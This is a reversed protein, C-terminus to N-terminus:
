TRAPIDVYVVTGLGYKSRIKIGYENGYMLKLRRNTNFLGIHESYDGKEKLRERISKLASPEIGLGNDIIAIKIIEKDLRIKIKIFCFSVKEKIGHYISNEIFPQFLLKIVKYSTINEDYQWIVGFKDKYRIKQIEIYSQTNKIEDSLSVLDESGSLSYHLLESLHEIMKSVENQGETLALSKWFLTKLTNFLFHPNMQAQLAMMEAAKLQYKKESLQVKLYSQEIFTKVVNQLIYGYEDKIYSPLAPLPEGKEASEFASIINNLRTYNRKTNYYTIALGLLFSIMVLFGTLFLLQTPVKYLFKKPIVSVYKLPYRGSEIISVVFTKSGSKYEFYDLPNSNIKEIDLEEIVSKNRTGAIINNDNDIILFTHDPYSIAENLIDEIYDKKVNMVIVGDAKRSGPSYLKDYLSILSVTDKEFSFLRIERAEIWADAESEIFSDYWTKDIFSHLNEIGLNSVYFSKNKNKYYIYLSQIYPKSNVPPNILNMIDDLNKIVEYDKLRGELQNKVKIIVSPNLDFNISLSDLENFILEITEKTQNLIKINNADIDERIMTQTLTISFTGLTILPILLPIMFVVLNKLFFKRRM